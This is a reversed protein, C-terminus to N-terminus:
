RSEERGPCQGWQQGAEATGGRVTSTGEDRSGVRCCGRSCVYGRKEHLFLTHRCGFAKGSSSTFSLYHTPVSYATPAQYMKNNNKVRKGEPGPSANRAYGSATVWSGMEGRQAMRKKEISSISPMSLWTLVNERAGPPAGGRPKDMQSFAPLPPWQRLRGSFIALFKLGRSCELTCFKLSCNLWMGWEPSPSM